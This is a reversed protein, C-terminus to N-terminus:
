AEPTLKVRDLAIYAPVNMGWQGSDSSAMQIYVYKLAGSANLASLDVLTWDKTLSTKGDRYDALYYDVPGVVTGNTTVGYFSAKTWDGSAFVKSYASGELMTYYAYTTNNIYASQISFSTGATMSIKLSPNAPNIEEATNWYGVLYPTATGAVGGGQMSAYQHSLWDNDATYDAVDSVRSACFGSWYAGWASVTATHTFSVGQCDISTVEPTLANAWEGTSTYELKANVLNVTVSKDPENDSCSALPLMACIGSLLLLNKITSKM